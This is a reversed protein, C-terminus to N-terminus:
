INDIQSKYIKFNLQAANFTSIYNRFVCLKFLTKIIRKKCSFTIDFYCIHQNFRRYTGIHFCLISPVINSIVCYGLVKVYSLYLFQNLFFHSHSPFALQTLVFRSWMPRAGSRPGIFVAQAVICVCERQATTQLNAEHWVHLEIDLCQICIKNLSSYM